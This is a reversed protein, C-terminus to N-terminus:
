AVPAPCGLEALEARGEDARDEVVACEAAIARAYADFKGLYEAPLQEAIALADDLRGDHLAVRCEVFHAFGQVKPDKTLELARASWMRMDTHDGTLGCVMAAAYQAPAMWGATPKGARRWASVMEGAEVLAEAFSGRLADTLALRSHALMPVGQGISDTAARAAAIRAAPLNGSAIATETVMHFIDGVEGGIAPDHRAFRDLLRLRRDALMAAKRFRGDGLAATTVGDLAASILADDGVRQAAAPAEEGLPGDCRARVPCATWAKAAAIHALVVPSDDAVRQARALLEGLLEESPAEPFSGPCRAGLVVASALAIAEAAPDNAAAARDAADRLLEFASDSRMQAFAVHAASRLAAVKARGSTHVAATEYHVQAEALYSRTYALHGLACALQHVVAHEPEPTLQHLAARLDDVVVDFEERWDGGAVMRQEIRQAIGAAWRLHRARIEAEEGSAALLEGAYVRVIELLHWRSTPGRRHALLNKDALRGVIDAIAARSAAADGAVATAADLDFGGWFLAVRRFVAREEDDLLEHSWDIVARLSRHREASGRAGKLLRMRDDLATLVGDIGLSACRAAALEIALPVGDLRACVEGVLAPDPDLHPEIARARDLFLTVAESGKAKGTEPSILALPPATIVREESSGLRELSTALVVLGPCAACLETVFQSVADLVHECNDIVLLWRGEALRERVADALPQQPRATIGLAAAVAQPVFAASM